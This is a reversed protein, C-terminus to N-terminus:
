HKPPNFIDWLINNILNDPNESQKKIEKYLDLDIMISIKSGRINVIKEIKEKYHEWFEKTKVYYGFATGPNKYIKM